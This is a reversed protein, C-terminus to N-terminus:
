AEYIIFTLHGPLTGREKWPMPLPGGVWDQCYSCWMRFM